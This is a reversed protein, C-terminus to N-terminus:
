ELKSTAGLDFQDLKELAFSEMLEKKLKQRVKKQMLHNQVEVPAALVQIFQCTIGKTILDTWENEAVKKLQDFESSGNQHRVLIEKNPVLQWLSNFAYTNSESPNQKLYELAEKMPYDMRHLCYFQETLLSTNRTYAQGNNQAIAAKLGGFVEEFVQDKVLDFSVEKHPGEKHAKSLRQQLMKEPIKDEILQAYPVLKPEGKSAVTVIRYYNLDDFSIPELPEKKEAYALEFFATLFPGKKSSLELGKFPMKFGNKRVNVSETKIAANEFAESVWGQNKKLLTQRVFQDIQMSTFYDLQDFLKICEEESANEDLQLKPFQSMLLLWNDKNLKWSWVDQVKVALAAAHSNVEQYQVEIKEEVLGPSQSAIEDIQKVTFNLSLDNINKGLAELYVELQCLEKFSSFTLEKPPVYRCIEMQELAYDEFSKLTLEDLLPANAVETFYNQFTLIERWLSILQMKTMGLRNVKAYFYSEPDSFEKLGLYQLQEFHLQNQKMLDEEATQLSVTYGKEKAESNIQLIFECVSNILSEGFWDQLSRYGFLSLSQPMLNEDRAIWHYESQQESLFQWLAFPSFQAEELFLEMRIKFAKEFDTEHRLQDLKDKINPAHKAWVNEANLYPAEPHTYTKFQKERELQQKWTESLESAKKHAILSLLHTEVLNRAFVNESFFQMGLTQGYLLDEGNNTLLVSKLGNFLSQKIKRGSNTKFLVPDKVVSTNKPFLGFLLISSCVFIATIAFIFKQYKKFIGLM